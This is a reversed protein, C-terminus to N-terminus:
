YLLKKGKSKGASGGNGGTHNITVTSKTGGERKSIIVKPKGVNETQKDTLKKKSSNLEIQSNTKKTDNGIQLNTDFDLAKLQLTGEEPTMIGKNVADIILKTKTTKDKAEQIQKKVENQKMKAGAALLVSPSLKSYDGFPSLGSTDYGMQDYMNKVQQYNGYNQIQKYAANSGNAFGRAINGMQSQNPDYQTGGFGSLFQSAMLVRQRTTDDWNTPNIRSLANVIKNAGAQPNEGLNDVGGVGQNAQPQPQNLQINDLANNNGIAQEVGTVIPSANSSNNIANAIAGKGQNGKFKSILGSLFAM